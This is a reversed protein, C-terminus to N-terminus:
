AAIAKGAGAQIRAIERGDRVLVAVEGVEATKMRAMTGRIATEDTVYFRVEDLTRGNNFTWSLNFTLM